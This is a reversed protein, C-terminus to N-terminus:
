AHEQVRGTWGDNGDYGEGQRCNSAKCTIFPACTQQAEAEFLMKGRLHHTADGGIGGCQAQATLHTFDGRRNVSMSPKVPM